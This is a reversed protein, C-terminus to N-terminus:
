TLTASHRDLDPIFRRPITKSLCEHATQVHALIRTLEVEERQARQDGPEIGAHDREPLRARDLDVDGAALVVHGRVKRIAEPEPGPDRGRHDLVGDALEHLAAHALDPDRREVLPELVVAHAPRVDRRDVAVAALPNARGDDEVVPRVLGPREELGAVEVPRVDETAPDAPEVRPPDEGREGLGGRAQDDFPHLGRLGGTGDGGEVQVVPGLEPCGNAARFPALLEDLADDLVHVGQDAVLLVELFAESDASRVDCRRLRLEVGLCEELQDVPDDLLMRVDLQDRRGQALHMRGISVIPPSDEPEVALPVHARGTREVDQVADTAAVAERGAEEVPQEFAPRGLFGEAQAPSM